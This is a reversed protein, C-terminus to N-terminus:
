VAVLIGNICEWFLFQAAEDDIEVNKNRHAILINGPDTKWNQQLFIHPDIRPFYSDSVSVHIHIHFNLSLGRLEKEPFAYITYQNCHLTPAPTLLCKGIQEVNTTM